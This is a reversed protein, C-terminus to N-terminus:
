GMVVSKVGSYVGAATLGILVGQMITEQISLDPILFAGLIGFVIAVVPAFRGDGSTLFNKVISTLGMVVPVLAISYSSLSVISLIDM